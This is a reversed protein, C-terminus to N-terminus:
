ALKLHSKIKRVESDLYNVRLSLPENDELQKLSLNLKRDLNLHNEAIISVDSRIKLELINKVFRLDRQQQDLQEDIRKFCKDHDDLRADIRKLHADIEDFRKDHDDLRVKIEDFRKDHSDLRADIRKLHADIEDFRKDHSDLRAEIRDLRAEVHDMREELAAVRQGLADMRKEFSSKLDLVVNLIQNLIATNSDM